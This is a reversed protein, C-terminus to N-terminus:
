KWKAKKTPKSIDTEEDSNVQNFKTKPNFKEKSKFMDIEECANLAKDLEKDELERKVETQNSDAMIEETFTQRSSKKLKPRIVTVTSESTDDRMEVLCPEEYGM